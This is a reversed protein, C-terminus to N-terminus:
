TQHLFGDNGAKEHETEQEEATEVIRIQLMVGSRGCSSNQIEYCNEPKQYISIYIPLGMNIWHGGQGYWRSIKKEAYIFYSTVFTFERHDNFEQVFNDVLLWRDKEQM